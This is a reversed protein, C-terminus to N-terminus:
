SSRLTSLAKGVASRAHLLGRQRLELPGNPWGYGADEHEIIVAKACGRNAVAEFLSPWQVDGDGPLRFSWWDGYYGTVQVREPRLQVDKAHILFARDAVAQFAPLVEIGQPLLHSPDFEVGVRRDDTRSFLEQWGAPTTVLWDKSFGPWNEFVVNTEANPVSSFLESLFGALSAYDEAAPREPNRGAFFTVHPVNAETARFFCERAKVRREHERTPNADLLAGFYVISCVDLGRDRVRRCAMAAKELEPLHRNADIELTQFGNAVAWDAVAELPQERLVVSYFGIKM